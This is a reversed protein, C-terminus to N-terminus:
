GAALLGLEARLAGELTPTRFRFGSAELAGPRVRAGDLLLAQGMEGTLARLLSAPV